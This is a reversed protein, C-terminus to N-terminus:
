EKMQISAIIPLHDSLGVYNSDETSFKKPIGDPMFEPLSVIDVKTEDLYPAVMGLLQGSVIIHDLNHWSRKTDWYYTGAINPRSTALLPDTKHDVPNHAHKEGHMRWSCNYLHTRKVDDDQWNTKSLSRTRNRHANLVTQPFGHAEENLDGLIILSNKQEAGKISTKTNLFDYVYSSLHSCIKHRTEESGEDLRAQWHCAIMRIRNEKTMVDLVAMPRTGRPTNPVVIPSQELFQCDNYNPSYIIAIQLTPNDNKVDLSALKYGPLLRNKLELAAQMTSEGLALIHPKGYKIFLSELAKDVRSCKERYEELSQPWRNKSPEKSKLPDFHYFNYVNWWVVSINEPHNNSTVM